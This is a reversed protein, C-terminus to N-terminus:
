SCEEYNMFLKKLSDHFDHALKRFEHVLKLFMFLNFFDHVM